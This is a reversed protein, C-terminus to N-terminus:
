IVVDLYVHYLKTGFINYWCNVFIDFIYKTIIAINCHKGSIEFASPLGIIKIGNLTTM